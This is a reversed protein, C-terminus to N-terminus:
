NITYFKRTLHYLWTQKEENTSNNWIQIIEKCRNEVYDHNLQFPIYKILIDNMYVNGSFETHNEKFIGNIIFGTHKNVTFTLNQNNIIINNAKM